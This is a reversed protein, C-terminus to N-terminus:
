LPMKSPLGETRPYKPSVQGKCQFRLLTCHSLSPAVDGLNYAEVLGTNLRTLANSSATLEEQWSPGKLALFYGKPAVFPMAYELLVRLPAVARAMVVPFRQRYQQNQALTEFRGHVGTFRDAVGLTASMRQLANIKKGVSDIGFAKLKPRYLLLPLTPFGGGPGLDLVTGHLPPLPQKQLAKNVAVKSSQKPSPEATANNETSELTEEPSVDALAETEFDLPLCNSFLLSELAHRTMAEEFSTIRTLNIRQNEDELVALQRELDLLLPLDVELGLAEAESLWNQGNESTLWHKLRSQPALIDLGLELSPTM